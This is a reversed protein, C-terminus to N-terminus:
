APSEGLADLLDRRAFTLKLAPRMAILEYGARDLHALLARADGVGRNHHVQTALVKVGLGHLDLSPLVEYEGGEIDIKLMDIREDGLERALSDLARGPVQMFERTDYLSASSLSHSGPHHTRQMRLPGDATAIAAQHVAFRPQGAAAERALAVYEAVPDISQVRVGFMAILDLDFSVDPGAGVSYCVWDPAILARPVIWGGYRSGLEIPQGRGSVPMQGLTREFWRRRLASRVKRPRLKSPTKTSPESM